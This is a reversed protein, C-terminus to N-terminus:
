DRELAWEFGALVDGRQVQEKPFNELVLGVREGVGARDASKRSTEISVVTAERVADQRRVEIMDGVQISGQEIKGTVVTGRGRISFVDEIIM